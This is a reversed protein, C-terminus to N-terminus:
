CQQLVGKSKSGGHGWCERLGSNVVDDMETVLLERDRHDVSFSTDASALDALNARGVARSDVLGLTAMALGIVGRLDM